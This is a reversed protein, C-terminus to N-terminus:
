SSLKLTTEGCVYFFPLVTEGSFSAGSYEYLLVQQETDFFSVRGGDYNLCVRIRNPEWRVSLPIDSGKITAYYDGYGWKEVSWIGDEPSFTFEGKRKVSKRAVGVAWKEENGVLIEWFHHGGTFEERGLVAGYYDFREPNEPLAQVKKGYSVSKRDASLILQPHATDPDLTVNAKQPHLGSNMTDKVQKMFHEWLPNLNSLDWFQWNLASLFPLPSEFEESEDFRQLLSRAGQLLESDPQQCKGEMEQTLSDRSSLAESLDALLQDRKRAVVEEVEEMQALLLKEKEELFAHLERFRAAVEQKQETTKKLLDQSEKVVGALCVVVEEREEKLMKLCNCFDDKYEQSAEDPPLTKHNRHEKSQVCVVCILAEDEKCFLKLPEQHKQCVRGKRGAVVATNEQSAEELPIVQHDRHEQSRSCVLCLPAEDEQCFLKLPEQHLECVGRKRKQGGREKSSGELPNLKQIIEVLNALQQNPRLTGEQARGRCQPCSAEAGELGGWSHTLCARCFNHSCEPIMVPDRFFDLCVSCSAEECLEKLRGEAEM